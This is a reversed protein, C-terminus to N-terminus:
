IKRRIRELRIEENLNNINKAIRRRVMFNILSKMTGEYQFIVKIEGEKPVTINLEGGEGRSLGVTSFKYSVRNNGEYVSGRIIISLVGLPLSAEFEKNEAVVTEAGLLKYLTFYPDSFIKLIVATEHETEVNFEM